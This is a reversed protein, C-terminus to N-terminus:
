VKIELREGDLAAPRPVRAMIILLRNTAFHDWTLGGPLILGSLPAWSKDRWAWIQKERRAALLCFEM